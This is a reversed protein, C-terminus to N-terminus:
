LIHNTPVSFVNEAMYINSISSIKTFLILLKENIQQQLHLALQFKGSIEMIKAISM